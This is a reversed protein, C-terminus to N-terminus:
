CSAQDMNFIGHIDLILGVRGDGMITAGAVGKVEKLKEGLNKIVVEQKGLLDDVMLCRQQGESEVVIVLSEWPEAKEPIIGLLGHLRILPALTNRIKVLEGKKEVTSIDSRQPRLAEKIFITPIIFRDKGIRVIIGDLIALTLPIRLVFRCGKHEV